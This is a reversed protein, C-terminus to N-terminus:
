TEGKPQEARERRAYLSAWVAGGILGILIAISVLPPIRVWDHAAIKVAAFALVAALGYHLYPLSTIISALYLYLSRLGLIAFVNSTYVIFRNHTISLAAPVSDIAFVLDTVEIAILAVLLPTAVRGGDQRAFFQGCEVSEKLPLHRSLWEVIRSQEHRAPDKHFARWAAYVLTVAFIYSIWDWRSVASTGLFIFAGRLVVAGLVGWMLVKRHYEEPINLSQFIVYFLFMNDLSLGEEMAYAGFYEQALTAGKVVWVFAGFALGVAIWMVAYVVARTKSPHKKHASSLLEIGLLLLVVAGFVVWAWM